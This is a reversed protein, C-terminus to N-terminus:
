SDAVGRANINRLEGYLWSRAIRWDRKVTRVSIQLAEAIEEESLGVFFRLEVVKSQRADWTSLRNLAEDVAILEEANKVVSLHPEDLDIRNLDGGRKVSRNARAYDILIRRMVKASVAFFHARDQWDANIGSLLRIYAENVLATPQLTHDGRESRMLREAIRHLQQYVLSLLQSEADRNGIRLQRLLQTVDGSSESVSEM